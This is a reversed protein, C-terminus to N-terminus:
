RKRAVGCFEDVPDPTLIQPRWLPCPVVGPELLELGDFLREIESPTRLQYRESGTDNWLRVAAEIAPGDIVNTCDAIVLHSGPALPWLLRRVISRAQDFAPVHGLVNVLIVAVPETLDLHERAQALLQEPRTLDAEIGNVLDDAPVLLRARVHSLVLPDRDVYLVRCDPAARRAVEHVNDAAPLGSGIDLFQRVGAEAALYTVSRGLFARSYRALSVVQPYGRSILDGVQRDVEYNDKGGLWYNWIRASNAVSVDISRVHQEGIPESTPDPIV